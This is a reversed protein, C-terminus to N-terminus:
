VGKGGAFDQFEDLIWLNQLQDSAKAVLSMWESYSGKCPLQEPTAQRLM